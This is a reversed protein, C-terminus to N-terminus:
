WGKAYLCVKLYLIQGSKDIRSKNNTLSVAMVPKSLSNSLNFLYILIVTLNIIM